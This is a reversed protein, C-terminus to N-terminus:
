PSSEHPVPLLLHLERQSRYFELQPRSSDYGFESILAGMISGIQDTKSIWDRLKFRACPGPAIETVEFGEAQFRSEEESSAPVLGAFYDLSDKSEWVLGYFKRGQLTELRSELDLFAARNGEPFQRSRSTILRLAPQFIITAKKMDM